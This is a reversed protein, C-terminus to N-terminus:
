FYHYIQVYSHELSSEKCLCADALTQIGILKLLPSLSRRVRKGTGTKSLVGLSGGRVWALHKEPELVLLDRKRPRTRVM